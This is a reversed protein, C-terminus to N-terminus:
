QGERARELVQQFRELPPAANTEFNTVTEGSQFKLGGDPLLQDTDYGLILGTDDYRQWTDRIQLPVEVGQPNPSFTFTDVSHIWGPTKLKQRFEAILANL